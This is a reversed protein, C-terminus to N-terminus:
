AAVNAAVIRRAMIPVVSNGIKAVQETKTVRTGDSYRDIVYSAPFGQARKLEEPRLMRLHADGDPFTVLGFRDRCTITPLPEDVGRADHSNGYYSILFARRGYRGVGAEIRRMTAEALPRRRGTVSEGADAFDIHRSVPEWSPMVSAEITGPRANTREPWATRCGDRRLVAYWRRRITPAGYDAAVLERSEFTYGLSRMSRVFEGYDEWTQIEAVNEMVIVDPMVNRAQKFVAWPLMRIHRSRPRGGRARSFHTCDPSAWMLSVHRGRVYEDLRVDFVDEKLHLADPHNVAHMMLAKLDHNVAIDVERGNAERIGESAGGGGAFMDIVLGDNM